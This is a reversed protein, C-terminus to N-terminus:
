RSQISSINNDLPYGSRSKMGIMKGLGMLPGTQPYLPMSKTPDWSLYKTKGPANLTYFYKAKPEIQRSFTGTSIKTRPDYVGLQMPQNLDIDLAFGQQPAIDAYRLFKENIFITVTITNASKNFVEFGPGQLKKVLDSSKQALQQSAISSQSIVALTITAISLFINKVSKM